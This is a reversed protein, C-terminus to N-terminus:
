FGCVLAPPQKEQTKSKNKIVLAVNDVALGKSNLLNDFLAM